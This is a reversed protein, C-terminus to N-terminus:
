LRKLYKYKKDEKKLIYNEWFAPEDLSSFSYNWDIVEKLAAIIETAFWANSDIVKPPLYTWEYIGKEAPLYVFYKLVRQGNRGIFVIPNLIVSRDAPYIFTVTNNVQNSISVLEPSASIYKDYFPIFITRKMITDTKAQVEEREKRIADAVIKYMGIYPRNEREENKWIGTSYQKWQPDQRLDRVKEFLDAEWFQPDLETSHEKFFHHDQLSSNFYELKGQFSDKPNFYTVDMKQYFWKGNYRVGCVLYAYTQPMDDFFAPDTFDRDVKVNVSRDKKNKQMAAFDLKGMKTSYFGVFKTHSSDYLCQFLLTPDILSDSKPIATNIIKEDFPASYYRNILLLYREQAVQKEHRVRPSLFTVTGVVESLAQSLANNITCSITSDECAFDFGPNNWGGVYEKSFAIAGSQGDYLQMTLKAFAKGSDKYLIVSPFNVIYQLGISDYIARLEAVSGGTQIDNMTILPNPFKESFTYSLYNGSILAINKFFDLREYFKKFNLFFKKREEPLKLFEPSKLINEIPNSDIKKRLLATQKSIEKEFSPDYTIKNPTLILIQPEELAQAKAISCYGSSLVFVIILFCISRNHAYM